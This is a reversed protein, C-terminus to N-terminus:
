SWRAVVGSPLLDITGYRCAVGQLEGFQQMSTRGVPNIDWQSKM